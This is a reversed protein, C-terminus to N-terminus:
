QRFHKTNLYRLSLYALIRFAILIFFLIAINFGYMRDVGHIGISDLVEKGSITSQTSCLAFQSDPTCDFVRDEDFEMVLCANFAYTFVSLYRAWYVFIPLNRVFFGGVLMLGLMGITASVLAQQMDLLAAGIFLGISEASWVCVLEAFMFGLFNVFNANMNAMWYSIILFVTPLLLLLPAESVAKSLFYASLHYSGSAREKM